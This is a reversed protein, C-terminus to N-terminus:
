FENSEFIFNAQTKSSVSLQFNRILHLIAMQGELLALSRAVCNRPGSGFPLYAFKHFTPTGLFREPQFKHPEPFQTPDHHMSYICVRFLDDKKIDIQFKGNATELRMDKGARRETSTAPPQIRLTESIVANLYAFRPLAEFTVLKFPDTEGTEEQLEKLVVEIEELLKAQKDPNTALFYCCNGILTATTDYGVM